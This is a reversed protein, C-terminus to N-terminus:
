RIPLSEGKYRLVNLARLRDANKSGAPIMLIRGTENFQVSEIMSLLDVEDVCQFNINDANLTYSYLGKKRGRQFKYPHCVLGRGNIGVVEELLELMIWGKLSYRGSSLARAEIDSCM